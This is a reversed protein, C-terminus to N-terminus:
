SDKFIKKNFTLNKHMFFNVLLMILTVVIRSPMKGVSLTSVLIYMMGVNFLLSVASISLHMSLQGAIKKSKCRFTFIKNLIYNTISGLIFSIVLAIQYNAGISIALIYFSGWDIVTAAGGVILYRVLRIQIFKNYIKNKIM